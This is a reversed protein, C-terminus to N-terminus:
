KVPADKVPQVPQEETEHRGAINGGHPKDADYQRDTKRVKSKYGNDNPRHTSTDAPSPKDKSNAPKTM